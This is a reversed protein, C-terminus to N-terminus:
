EEADVRDEEGTPDALDFYTDRVDNSIEDFVDPNETLYNAFKAIGQLKVDGYSLWAGGKKVIGMDVAMEIYEIVEDYGHGYRLWAKAEGGPPGLASKHCEWHVEQGVREEKDLWEKYYLGALKVDAQYQIKQGSAEVWTARSMGQNAIIHTIGMVISKNISIVQSIRKCFDALLMPADDRFRKGFENEQRMKSSLASFSDFIFVSGPYANILKEGIGLFEEAYLINGPSSRVLQFAEPDTNLRKNDFIDREKIRGEIDFYFVKREGFKENPLKQANAAIQLALSSKGLAPKGSIVVFSGEPIGGNLILDIKPTTPIVIRKEEKLISANQFADGFQKLIDDTLSKAM